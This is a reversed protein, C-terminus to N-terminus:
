RMTLEKYEQNLERLEHELEAKRSLIEESRKATEHMDCIIRMGFTSYLMAIQDKGDSGQSISPHYDYVLNIIDYEGVTPKKMGEPLRATFEEYLM